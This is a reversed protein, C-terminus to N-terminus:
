RGARDQHLTFAAALATFVKDPSAAITQPVLVGFHGPVPEVRGGSRAASEAWELYGDPDLRLIIAQRSAVVERDVSRIDSWPIWPGHDVWAGRDVSVKLELEPRILRRVILPIGVVGFFVAVAIGLMRILGNGGGFLCLGIVALGVCITLLLVLGTRATRFELEEGRSLRAAHDRSM